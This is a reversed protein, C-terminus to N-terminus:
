ATDRHETRAPTPTVFLMTSPVHIVASHWTGRPVITGEGAPLRASRQEQGNDLLFDVEGSIVHVFEDGDPHREWWTWTETYDFVSMIRGDTLEDHEDLHEWYSDTVSLFRLDLGGPLHLLTSRGLTPTAREDTIPTDMLFDDVM